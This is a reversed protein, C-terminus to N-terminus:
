KGMSHGMITFKSWELEEVVWRVDGLYSADYYPVGSPRHSSFGHGPLDLVVYYYDKPLLPILENFTNANDAWGHLCLIPRGTPPGWAKAAIHGWPVKIKLENVLGSFC